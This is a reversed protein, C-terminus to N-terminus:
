EEVSVQRKRRWFCIMDRERLAVQVLVWGQEGQANLIEVIAVAPEHRYETKTYPTLHTLIKRAYEKQLEILRPDFTPPIHPTAFEDAAATASATTTCRAERVPGRVVASAGSTGGKVLDGAKLGKKVLDDSVSAVLLAASTVVYITRM